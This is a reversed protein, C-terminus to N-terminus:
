YSWRRKDDFDYGSVEKFAAKDEDQMQRLVAVLSEDYGSPSAILSDILNKRWRIVKDLAQAAALATESSIHITFNM